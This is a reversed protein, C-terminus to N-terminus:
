FQREECLGEKVRFLAGFARNQPAQTTGTITVAFDVLDKGERTCLRRLEFLSSSADNARTSDYNRVLLDMDKSLNGTRVDFDGIAENPSCFFECRNGM